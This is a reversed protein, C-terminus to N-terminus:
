PKWWPLPEKTLAALTVQTFRDRMGYYDEHAYCMAEDQYGLDVFREDVGRLPVVTSDNALGALIDDGALREEQWTGLRVREELMLMRVIAAFSMFMACGCFTDCSTEIKADHPWLRKGTSVLGEDTVWCGLYGTCTDRRAHHILVELTKKGVSTDDDLLLYYDAPDFLAAVFKGRCETNPAHIVDAELVSGLNREPNNDLVLIRDPPHTGSRLDAVIRTLNERRKPWYSCVVAVIRLM